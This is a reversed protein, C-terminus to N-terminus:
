DDEEPVELEFSGIEIVGDDWDFSCSEYDVNDVVETKYTEMTVLYECLTMMGSEIECDEFRCNTLPRVNEKKHYISHIVCGDEGLVTIHKFTCGVIEGEDELTLLSDYSACCSDFICSDLKSSQAYAWSVNEYTCGELVCGHVAVSQCNKFICNKLTMGEFNINPFNLFTVGSFPADLRFYIQGNEDFDEMGCSLAHEKNLYDIIMNKEKEKPKGLPYVLGVVENGFLNRM